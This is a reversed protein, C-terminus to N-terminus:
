EVIEQFITKAQWQFMVLITITDQIIIFFLAAPYPRYPWLCGSIETAPFGM